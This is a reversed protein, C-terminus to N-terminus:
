RTGVVYVDVIIRGERGAVVDLMADLEAPTRVVTPDDHDVDYWAELEVM